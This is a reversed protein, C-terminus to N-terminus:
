RTTVAPPPAPLPSEVTDIMGASMFRLLLAAFEDESAQDPVLGDRKLMALHDRGSIRGRANALLAAVWAPCEAEVAMPALVDVWSQELEWGEGTFRARQRLQLEPNARPSQDLLRAPLTPDLATLEWRLLWEVGPEISRNGRGPALTRRTTFVPRPSSRRQVVIVGYVM